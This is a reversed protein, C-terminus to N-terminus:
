GVRVEIIVFTPELTSGAGGAVGGEVSVTTSVSVRVQVQFMTSFYQLMHLWRQKRTDGLSPVHVAHTGETTDSQFSVAQFKLVTRVAHVPCSCFFTAAAVPM